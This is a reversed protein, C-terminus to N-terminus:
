QTKCDPVEEEAQRTQNNPLGRSTGPGPGGGSEAKLAPRPKRPPTPTTGSPLNRRSENLISNYLWKQTTEGEEGGGKGRGGSSESGSLGERRLRDPLLSHPLSPPTIPTSTPKGPGPGGKTVAEVQEQAALLKLRLIKFSAESEVRQQKVYKLEKRVEWLERELSM